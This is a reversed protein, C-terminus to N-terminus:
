SIKRVSSPINVVRDEFWESNELSGCQANKYMASKNMLQWIPRTMVKNSNTFELFADREARDKLVIAQLWYNASTNKPEEFLQIDTNQFFTQYEKHLEKKDTVFKNFMELQACGLAANLNPMRYNYAVLDHVYDWRHPVKGTTTIHRAKKALAEDDTIIMGGGGTTMTKNGNFSLIGMLGFTGTHKGKFTSGLSEASDEILTINFKECVSKIEDIKAPFGFTHMPVCAKIIRGSKKNYCYGDDRVEGFETLFEELRAPSMGMTEKDVDIFVPHANCYNIANATAIFTVPQTIVETNEKVGALLLAIHLAATGNVTAVAYKAGTYEAIMEEFKDVYKGVSSVFTSDICDAVYKKENGWFRPEHLPIFEETQFVQRVYNVFEQM